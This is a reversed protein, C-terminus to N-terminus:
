RRLDKLTLWTQSKLSPDALMARLSEIRYSKGLQEIGDVLSDNTFLLKLDETAEARGRVFHMLFDSQSIADFDGGPPWNLEGDLGSSRGLAAAINQALRSLDPLPVEDSFEELFLLDEYQWWLLRLPKQTPKEVVTRAEKEDPKEVPEPSLVPTPEAVQDPQPLDSLPTEEVPSKEVVAQKVLTRRQYQDVGLIRLLEQRRSELM